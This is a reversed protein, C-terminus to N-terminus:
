NKAFDPIDVQFSGYRLAHLWLQSNRVKNLRLLTEQNGCQPCHLAVFRCLEKQEESLSDHTKMKNDEHRKELTIESSIIKIENGSEIKFTEDVGTTAKMSLSRPLSPLSPTKSNYKELILRIKEKKQVDGDLIVPGYNPDNVIPFGLTQLHLRIQHTRGTIPQCEVLSTGTDQDRSIVKILTIGQRPKSSGVTSTTCTKHKKDGDTGHGETHSPNSESLSTHMDIVEWVGRKFNVCHQFAEVRMWSISNENSSSGEKEKEEKEKEKMMPQNDDHRQVWSVTCKVGIGTTGQRQHSEREEQQRRWEKQSRPFLGLVRALYRKQIKNAQMADGFRRAIRSSNTLLVLGTTLRDIRHLTLLKRNVIENPGQYNQYLANRLVYTLANHRYSGCAHVPMTGPKNVVLVIEKEHCIDKKRPIRKEDGSTANRGSAANNGSTAENSYHDKMKESTDNTISYSNNVLKENDHEQKDENEGKDNIISNIARGSEEKVKKESNSGVNLKGKDHNILGQEERRYHKNPKENQGLLRNLFEDGRYIQVKIFPSKGLSIPPEHRHLMHQLFDQSRIRQLEDVAPVGNVLIRGQKLAKKYYEVNFGRAENSDGFEKTFVSLVGKDIMRKKAFCSFTFLYPKVRRVYDGNLSKEITIKVLKLESRYDEENIKKKARNGKLRKRSTEHASFYRVKKRKSGGGM